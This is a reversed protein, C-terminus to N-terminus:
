EAGRHQGETVSWGGDVPLVQGTLFRSQDSLLFVVAEDLDEPRGIRGGDLPQKTRIYAMIADDGQARDSMPTAVLGPAVANFRLNASAYYAACSRTFGVVAARSAAYTHTAFFHPAPSFGLVSSMNLVVGSRGDELWDRVAARNSRIVAKLNLDLTRDIGEDTIEHLPGDGMSRGSGGAVHYLGDFSGFAEKAEAIARPTTEPDVADGVLARGADGLTAGAEEAAERKRGVVVARGGARVCARAASLGLGTTGGVIM